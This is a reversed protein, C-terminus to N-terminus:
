LNILNGQSPKASHSRAMYKNAALKAQLASLIASQLGIKTVHVLLRVETISPSPTTALFDDVAMFLCEAMSEASLQKEESGPTYCFV